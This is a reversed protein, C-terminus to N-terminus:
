IRGEVLSLFYDELSTRPVIASVQIGNTVLLENLRGLENRDVSLKIISDKVSIKKVARDEQLLKRALAVNTVTFETIVDGAQRLLEGAPGSKVLRGHDVVALDTCIQEVEHLIHSSLFVTMKDDQALRVILNRINRIGAPDLGSTPEDLILLEPRSLLAQAIGLRQRMGRSYNRVRDNARPSLDVIDLVKDIRRGGEKGRLRGLMELNTRASLNGYFDPDEIFAGVKDLTANQQKVVSQGFLQIDGSDPTLLALMLRITTSKGAGNPGLFGFISGQHIELSLNDVARLTRFSKSLNSIKIIASM